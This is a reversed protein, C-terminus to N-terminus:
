RSEPRKKDRVTHFGVFMALRAYLALLSSDLTFLIATSVIKVFAHFNSLVACMSLSFGRHSEIKASPTLRPNLILLCCCPRM